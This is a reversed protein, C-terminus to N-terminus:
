EMRTRQAANNDIDVLKEIHLDLNKQSAQERPLSVSISLAFATRASRGHVCGASAM